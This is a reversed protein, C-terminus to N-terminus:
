KADLPKRRIGCGCMPCSLEIHEECVISCYDDEPGRAEVFRAVWSVEDIMGDTIHYNKPVKPLGSYGCKSCTLVASANFKVDPIELAKKKEDSM